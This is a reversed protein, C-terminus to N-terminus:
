GTSNEVLACQNKAHILSHYRRVVRFLRWYAVFSELLFLLTKVAVTLYFAIRNWLRMSSICGNVTWILAVVLAARAHTVAVHYRLHLKFAVSFATM